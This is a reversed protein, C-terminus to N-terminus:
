KPAVHQAYGEHEFNDSDITPLHLEEKYRDVFDRVLAIEDKLGGPALKKTHERLAKVIRVPDSQEQYPIRPRGVPRSRKSSSSFDLPEDPSEPPVEPSSEAHSQPPLHYLRRLRIIQTQNCPPSRPPSSLRSAILLSLLLYSPTM